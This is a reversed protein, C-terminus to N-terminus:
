KLAFTAFATATHWTKTEGAVMRELGLEVNVLTNSAQRLAFSTVGTTLDTVYVDDTVVIRFLRKPQAADFAYVITQPQDNKRNARPLAAIVAYTGALAYDPNISTAHRLDQEVTALIRDSDAIMGATTDRQRNTKMISAYLTLTGAMMGGLLSITILMELLTMGSQSFGAGRRMHRFQRNM